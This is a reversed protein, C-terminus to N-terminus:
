GGEGSQPPTVSGDGTLAPPVIALFATVIFAFLSAVGV